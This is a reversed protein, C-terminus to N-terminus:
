AKLIEKKALVQDLYLKAGHQSFLEGAADLHQTALAHDGQREAVEALGQHCRGAEVPCRERECWELGTRFHQEAEDALDLRLAFQGRVNDMGQGLSSARMLPWGCIEGYYSRLTTAGALATLADAAMAYVSTRISLNPVDALARELSSLEASAHERDGEALFMAARVALVNATLPEDWGRSAASAALEQGETPRGDQLARLAQLLMLLVHLGATEPIESALADFRERECRAAAIAALRLRFLQAPVNHELAYELGSESEAEGRDLDGALIEARMIGM